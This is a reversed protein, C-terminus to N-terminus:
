AVRSAIRFLHRIYLGAQESPTLEKDSVDQFLEAARSSGNEGDSDLLSIVSNPSFRPDAYAVDLSLVRDIWEAPLASVALCVERAIKASEREDPFAWLMRLIPDTLAAPGLAYLAGVQWSGQDTQFYHLDRARILGAAVLRDIDDQLGADYPTGYLKLLEKTLPVVDWIPALANCLYVLQHFRTSQVPSIGADRAAQLLSLLRANRLTRVGEKQHAESNYSM